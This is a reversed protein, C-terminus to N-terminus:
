SGFALNQDTRITNEMGTHSLAGTNSFSNNVSDPTRDEQRFFFSATNEWIMTQTRQTLNMQEYRQLQGRPRKIRQDAESFPHAKETIPTINGALVPQSYTQDNILENQDVADLRSELDLVLSQLKAAAQLGSRPLATLPNINHDGRTKATRINDEMEADLAAGVLEAVNYVQNLLESHSQKLLAKTQYWPNASIQSALSKEASPGFTDQQSLINTSECNATAMRKSDNNETELEDLARVQVLQQKLQDIQQNIDPRIGGSRMEDVMDFLTNIVSHLCVMIRRTEDSFFDLYDRPIWSEYIHKWLNVTEETHQRNVNDLVKLINNQDNLFQHNLSHSFLQQLQVKWFAREENLLNSWLDVLRCWMSSAYRPDIPEPISPTLLRSPPRESQINTKSRVAEAPGYPQNFANLSASINRDRLQDQSGFSNLQTRDIEITHFNPSRMGDHMNSLAYITEPDPIDNTWASCDADAVQRTLLYGIFDEEVLPVLTSSRM